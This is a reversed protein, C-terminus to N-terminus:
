LWSRWWSKYPISQNIAKRAQSVIFM